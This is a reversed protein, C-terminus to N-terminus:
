QGVVKRVGIEIKHLTQGSAPVLPLRPDGVPGWLSTMAAKLGMPSPELFLAAVVDAMAGDLREAEGEDGGNFADIMAKIQNGVLHSAVSVVGVGGLRLLPLTFADAGSYVVAQGDVAAFQREAYDLDETADKIAVIRPHEALRAMTEVEILRATRGPINYVLVPLDTAEAIAAFHQFIGDQPPKSYYPTVAMAGDCGAEAARQTMEVSEATNYTGVGAVVTGKGAAAEVATKFLAVKEVKSLTPAEGTTGAVVVGDSGNELLHRVLRWFAEYDVAGTKEFPTIVATLVSGFPPTSTANM